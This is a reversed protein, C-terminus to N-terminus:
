ASRAGSATPRLANTDRLFNRPGGLHCFQLAVFRSLCTMGKAHQKGQHRAVAADFLGRPALRVLQSFVSAVREIPPSIMRYAKDQVICSEQRRGRGSGQQMESLHCEFTKSLLPM